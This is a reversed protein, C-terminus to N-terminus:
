DGIKYIRNLKLMIFFGEMGIDWDVGFGWFNRNIFLLCCVGIM